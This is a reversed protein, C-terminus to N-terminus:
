NLKMFYFSSNKEWGDGSQGNNRQGLNIIVKINILDGRLYTLVKISFVKCKNIILKIFCIICIGIYLDKIEALINKKQM